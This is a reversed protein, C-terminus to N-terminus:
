QGFVSFDLTGVTDTQAAKDTVKVELRYDGVPFAALPAALGGMIQHRAALDFTAPLTGANFTQPPSTRFPVEGQGVRQYFMYEVLLDPKGANGAAPNYIFFVATMEGTRPLRTSPAPVMRTGGLSFPDDLQNQKRATVPAPELSSVLIVSSVALGQSLNPVTIPQKFVVTKPFDKGAKEQMAIYVNYEGPQLWLGRNLRGDRPPEFFYVDQAVVGTGEVNGNRIDKTDFTMSMQSLYSRMTTTKSGDYSPPLADKTLVRVYMAVPTGTLKGDIGISYPVYVFGNEAALYAAQWSLAVDAPASYQQLFVNDVLKSLAEARRRQEANLRPAPQTQASAVAACGLLAALALSAVTRRRAM